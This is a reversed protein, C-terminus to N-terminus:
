AWPHDAQDSLVGKGANERAIATYRDRSSEPERDCELEEGIAARWIEKYVHYGHICCDRELEEMYASGRELIYHVFFNLLLIEDQFITSNYSFNEAHVKLM